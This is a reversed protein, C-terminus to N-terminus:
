ATPQGRSSPYDEANDVSAEGLYAIQSPPMTLWGKFFLRGGTLTENGIGMLNKHVWDGLASSWDHSQGSTRAM